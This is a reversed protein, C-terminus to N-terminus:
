WVNCILEGGVGEARSRHGTMVGRSTTLINIGLGGLVLPIEDKNTYVRKGPKSVRRLGSIAPNGEGDYKLQIKLENQPVQELVRFNRIYGEEKLIEAINVKIRSAPIGVVEHRSKLANRIRTLMDAIPDTMNM